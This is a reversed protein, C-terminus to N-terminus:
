HKNLYTELFTMKGELDRLREEKVHADLYSLGMFLFMLGLLIRDKTM